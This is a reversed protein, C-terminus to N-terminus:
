PALPPPADPAADAPPPTDPTTSEVTQMTNLERVSLGGSTDADGDDFESQVLDPWAVLLEAFSLEGNADTDVDAFTTPTQALVSTASLGLLALGLALKQM